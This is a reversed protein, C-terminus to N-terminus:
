NQKKLQIYKTKYKLYKSYYKKNLESRWTEGVTSGEINFDDIIIIPIEPNKKIFTITEVVSKLYKELLELGNIIDFRNIKIFTFSENVTEDIVLIENNKFNDYIQAVTVYYVNDINKSLYILHGNIKNMTNDSLDHYIGNDLISKLKDNSYISTNSALTKIVGKGTTSIIPNIDFADRIMRFINHNTRRVTIFARQVDCDQKKDPAWNTGISKFPSAHYVFESDKNAVHSYLPGIRWPKFKTTSLNEINEINENKHTRKPKNIWTAWGSSIIPVSVFLRKYNHQFNYLLEEHISVYGSTGSKFRLDGYFSSPMPIEPGYFFAASAYYNNPESCNNIVHTYVISAIECYVESILGNVQDMNCQDMHAQDTVMGTSLAEKTRQGYPSTFKYIYINNKQKETTINLFKAHEKVFFNIIKRFYDRITPNYYANDLVSYDDYLPFSNCITGDNNLYVLYQQCFAGYKYVNRKVMLGKDDDWVEDEIINSIIYEHLDTVTMKFEIDNAEYEGEALKTIYGTNDVNIDFKQLNLTANYTKNEDIKNNFIIKNNLPDEIKTINPHEGVSWVLNPETKVLYESVFNKLNDFNLSM